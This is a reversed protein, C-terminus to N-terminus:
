SQEGGGGDNIDKFKISGGSTPEDVRFTTIGGEFPQNKDNLWNETPSYKTIFADTNGEKEELTLNYFRSAITDSTKIYMTYSKYTGSTIEKIVDTFIEIDSDNESRAYHNTSNTNNIIMKVAPKNELPKLKSKFEEYTITKVDISELNNKQLEVDEYFDKECSTFLLFTAIIGLLLNFNNKMIFINIPKYNLTQRNDNIM